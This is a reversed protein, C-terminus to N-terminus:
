EINSSVSACYGNVYKTSFFVLAPISVVWFLSAIIIAIPSLFLMLKADVVNEKLVNFWLDHVMRKVFNPIMPYSKWNNLKGSVLKSLVMVVVVMYMTLMSLMSWSIFIDYTQMYIM